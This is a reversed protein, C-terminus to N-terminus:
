VQGYRDMVVWTQAQRDMDTGTQGYRGMGTWAQGRREIHTLTYGSQKVTIYLELCKSGVSLHLGKPKDVM